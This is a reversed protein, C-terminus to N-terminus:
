RKEAVVCINEGWRKPFRIGLGFLVTFPFKFFLHQIIPPVGPFYPSDWLGDYRIEKIQFGNALFLDLWDENSLLSVHTSDRYGFWNDKKWKLGRSELNPVSVVMLGSKSLVRNCERVVSGPEQLHELLDFCTVIDFRGDDFSLKAADGVHLKSRRAIRGASEIAFESIDVGTTRFHKEARSLFVGKGCGLDLLRDSPVSRKLYRIWYGHYFPKRGKLIAGQSLSEFYDKGFRGDETPTETGAVM